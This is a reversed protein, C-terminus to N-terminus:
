ILRGSKIDKRFIATNDKRKRKKLIIKGYRKAGESYSTGEPLELAKCLEPPMPQSCSELARALQWSIRKEQFVAIQFYNLLYEYM